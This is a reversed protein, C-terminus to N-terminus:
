ARGAVSVGERTPGITRGVNVHDDHAVALVEPTPYQTKHEPGDASTHQFSGKFIGDLGELDPISCQLRIPDGCLQVSILIPRVLRGGGEIRTCVPAPCGAIM